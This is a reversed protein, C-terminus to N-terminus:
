RRFLYLLLSLIVSLLISTALPFYFTFGERRIYIDGPLRGIFPIKGALSILVGLVILVVGAIIVFRGMEAM